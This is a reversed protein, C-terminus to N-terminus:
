SNAKWESFSQGQSALKVLLDAPKWWRDGFQRQFGKITKLVRGLGVNDAYHMPGGRYPPFAYGNMWVVDIDGPRAAIGEDLIKAGENILPYICRAVIEDDSIERRIIGAREAEEAIIDDVLTECLPARSGPLYNYFGGGTKQGKREMEVLRNPVKYAHPDFRDAPMAKRMMYSIDLGAMDIVAIPGMPMGFDYMAKDVAMPSAGELLLLLAERVYGEFMRNAIFGHCVGSLVGVKNIRKILKMITALVDPATDDTRVVELLRMINAPAFFHMGLVDAPRKTAAAIEDVNLYSTNTALIAGKKAVMDLRQFVDRKVDM